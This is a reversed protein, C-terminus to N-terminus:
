GRMRSLAWELFAFPDNAEEPTCRVEIGMEGARKWRNPQGTCLEMLHMGDLKHRESLAFVARVKLMAVKSLGLSRAAVRLVTIRRLNEAEIPAAGNRALLRDFIRSIALADGAHALDSYAQLREATDPIWEEPLVCVLPVEVETEVKIEQSEGRVQAVAEGLLEVYADFGIAAIHGHQKDGLIEGGGRMELDRSALNFGSGLASAEQVALLRQLASKAVIGSGDVLLLCRAALDRRGVRGRIQYLQAVGFQEAGDILVLNVDPLDLGNEIITTCLLIDFERGAFGALVRELADDTMQAHGIGVRASPVLERLWEAFQPMGTVRNHLFYVQGGRALETLIEDRIRSPDFRVVETHIEKRGTPATTILSMERLGGLAMHLTRPIPTASLALYHLGRAIRRSEEKQKTGFRHEEDVVVLGLKAFAVGRGLAATTAVVVDIQGSALGERVGRATAADVFRSLMAVRAGFEGLRKTFSGYHQWALVTTPVLILAQSGGVLVRFAARMAVETKGFGVDGVVLRDMPRGSALDALVSEIAERQDPTEIFPFAEEFRSYLGDRGEFIPATEIKRRAHIRLIEAALKLVADRVKARRIEWTAGGLKDLRPKEVGEGARYPAVLDLKWVPVYLKDGDRYEVIVFDGMADGLPMRSLGRYIGIGHRAHVVLDGRDLKGLGVTAAKRFKSVVAGADARLKDGFIEDATVFVLEESWFGEPLDGQLLAITGPSPAGGLILGHPEFLQRIREARTGDDAVVCVAAGERAARRLEAIAPALDGTHGVRVQPNQNTSFGVGGARIPRAAFLLAECEVEAAYRDLPRVLPREESSLQEFRRIVTASAAALALAVRDPEVVFHTGAFQVLSLDSLAPLYDEASAFWIGARLDAMVQRRDQGVVGRETAVGHVYAVAREAAAEDLVGERAPQLIKPGRISEIEDDFWSIQTSRAEGLGWAEVGGGRRSVTGPEDCSPAVLYGRAVLASVLAGPPLVAGRSLRIENAAGVRLLLAAADVVVVAGVAARALIRAHIREPDRVNGDWPRGDDAPYPLVLRSPSFFRLGRVLRDMARHDEVIIVASGSGIVEALAWAVAGGSLGSLERNDGPILAQLFDRGM